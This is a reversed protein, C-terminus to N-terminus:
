YIDRIVKTTVGAAHETPNQNLPDGKADIGNGSVNTHLSGLESGEGDNAVEVVMEEPNSPNPGM